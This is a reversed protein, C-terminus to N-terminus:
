ARTEMRHAASVEAAPLSTAGAPLVTMGVGTRTEAILVRVGDVDVLHVTLARSVTSRALTRIGEGVSPRKRFAPLWRRLAYSVGVAVLAMLLFAFLVRGIGPLGLQTLDGGTALKATV